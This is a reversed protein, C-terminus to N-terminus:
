QRADALRTRVTNITEADGAAEAMALMKRWLPLAEDPKGARDLAKALQLTAGYHDLNLALVQRFRTAAETPNAQKYLDDLGAQMLTQIEKATMLAKFHRAQVSGAGPSAMIDAFDPVLEMVQFGDPGLDKYGRLYADSFGLVHGFEHALTRPAVDHPSLVIARNATLQLSEAGTTLVAGDASDRWTRKSTSTNAKPRHRAPQPRLNRM